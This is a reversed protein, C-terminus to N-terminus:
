NTKDVLSGIVLERNGVAGGGRMGGGGGWARLRRSPRARPETPRALSREVPDAAREGRALDNREESTVATTALYAERGRRRFHGGLCAVHCLM